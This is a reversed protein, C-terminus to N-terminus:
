NMVYMRIAQISCPVGERRLLDILSATALISLSQGEAAIRSLALPNISVLLYGHGWLRLM